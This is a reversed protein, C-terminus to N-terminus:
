FMWLTRDCLSELVTFENEQMHFGREQKVSLHQAQSVSWAMPTDAIINSWTWCIEKTTDLMSVVHLTKHRSPGMGETM